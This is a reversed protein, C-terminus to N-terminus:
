RADGQEISAAAGFLFFMFAGINPVLLVDWTFCAVGLVSLALLWLGAPTADFTPRRRLRALDGAAKALFGFLAFGAVLGPKWVMTLYQDHPSSNAADDEGLSASTVQFGTFGTGLVPNNEIDTLAANVLTLRGSTVSNADGGTESVDTQAIKAQWLTTLADGYTSVIAGGLAGLGLVIGLALAPRRFALSGLALLVFAVLSLLAGRSLSLVVLAALTLLGILKVVVLLGSQARGFFLDIWILAFLIFETIALSNVGHTAYLPLGLLSGQIDGEIRVPTRTAVLTLGMGIAALAGVISAVSLFRRLEEPRRVLVFGTFYALYPMFFFVVSFYPRFSGASTYLLDWLGASLVSACFGFALWRVHAVPRDSANALFPGLFVALIAPPIEVGGAEFLKIPLAFAAALVLTAGLRVSDKLVFPKRSGELALSM